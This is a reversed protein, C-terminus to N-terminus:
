TSGPSSLVANGLATGTQYNLLSQWQFLSFAAAPVSVDDSDWIEEKGILEELLSRGAQVHVKRLEQQTGQRKRKLSTRASAALLKPAPRHM